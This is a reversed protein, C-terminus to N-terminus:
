RQQPRGARGELAMSNCTLEFLLYDDNLNSEDRVM